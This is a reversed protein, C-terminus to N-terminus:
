GSVGSCERVNGRKRGDRYMESMIFKRRVAEEKTHIEIQLAGWKPVKGSEPEMSQCKGCSSKYENM